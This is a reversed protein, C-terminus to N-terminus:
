LASPNAPGAEERFWPAAPRTQTETEGAGHEGAPADGRALTRRRRTSSNEQNVTQQVTSAMPRRTDGHALPDTKKEQQIEKGDLEWSECRKRRELLQKDTTLDSQHIVM